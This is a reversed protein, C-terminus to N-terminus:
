MACYLYYDAFLVDSVSIIGGHFRLRCTEGFCQYMNVLSCLTVGFVVKMKMCLVMKKSVKDIYSCIKRLKKHKTKTFVTNHTAYLDIM